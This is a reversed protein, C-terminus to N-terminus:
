EDLGYTRKEERARARAVAESLPYLDLGFDAYGTKCVELYQETPGQVPFGANMIYVM